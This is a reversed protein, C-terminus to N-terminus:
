DLSIPLASCASPHFPAPGTTEDPLGISASYRPEPSIYPATGMITGVLTLDSNELRAIGFDALKVGGETPLMINGPKIARHVISQCHCRDVAALVGRTIDDVQSFPLRRTQDLLANLTGGRRVGYRYIRRRRSLRLRLGTRYRPRLPPQRGPGRPSLPNAVRRDHEDKEGLRAVKIAVRRALARDGALNRRRRTRGTPAPRLPRAKAGRARVKQEDTPDYSATHGRRHTGLCVNGMACAITAFINLAMNTIPLRGTPISKCPSPGPRDDARPAPKSRPSM